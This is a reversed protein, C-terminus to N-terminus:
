SKSAEVGPFRFLIKALFARRKRLEVDTIAYQFVTHSYALPIRYMM